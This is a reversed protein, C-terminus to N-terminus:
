KSSVPPASSRESHPTAAASTLRALATNARAFYKGYRSDRRVLRFLLWYALLVGLTIRFSFPYLDFTPVFFCLFWAFLWLLADAEGDLQKLMVLLSFVIIVPHHEWVLPSVSMLFLLLVPYADLVRAAPGPAGGSFTRKYMAAFCLGLSALSLLVRLVLVPSRADEINGGFAWYTARVLSDISNERLTLGNARYINSVNDLYEVYRHLGNLESTFAVIGFLFFAFWALWRFDRNIVFPLVLALPSTKIHAAVALALASAWLQTPYCLLGLLMLNTVYLNTQMYFLTRLVAVNVALASFSLLTAALNAFGYRILGRRILSFALLVSLLNAALYTLFVTTDGATVLPALLTALLPPYLYRPHLPEGRTLQLAATVYDFFDGFAQRERLVNLYLGALLAFALWYAAREVTWPKRGLAFLFVGLLLWTAGVCLLTVRFDSIPGPNTWELRPAAAKLFFAGWFTIAGTVSAVYALRACRLPRGQLGAVIACVGAIVCLAGCSGFWPGLASVLKPV